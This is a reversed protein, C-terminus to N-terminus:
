RLKCTFRRGDHSEFKYHRGAVAYTLSPKWIKLDRNESAVGVLRGNSDRIVIGNNNADSFVVRRVNGLNKCTAAQTSDTNALINEVVAIRDIYAEVLCNKHEVEFACRSRRKFWLFDNEFPETSATVRPQSVLASLRVDLRRLDDDGCVLHDSAYVPRVCDASSQEVAPPVVGQACIQASLAFVATFLVTLCQGVNMGSSAM